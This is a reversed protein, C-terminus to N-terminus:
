SAPQSPPLFSPYYAPSRDAAHPYYGSSLCQVSCGARAMWEVLMCDLHRQKDVQCQLEPVSVAREGAREGKTRASRCMVSENRPYLRHTRSAPLLTTGLGILNTVYCRTRFTIVHELFESFRYGDRIKTNVVDLYM